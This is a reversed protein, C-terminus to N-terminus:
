STDPTAGALHGRWRVTVLMPEGDVAGVKGRSNARGRAAQADVRVFRLTNGGNRIIRGRGQERRRTRLQQEGMRGDRHRGQIGYKEEPGLGNMFPQSFDSSLRFPSPLHVEASPPWLPSSRYIEAVLFQPDGISIRLPCVHLGRLDLVARYGIVPGIHEGQKAAPMVGPGIAIPLLHGSM